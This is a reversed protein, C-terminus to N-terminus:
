AAEKPLRALPTLGGRVMDGVACELTWELPLFLDVRSGFRIIGIRDGRAVRDGENPDTVIRRAILGAIQRVLVRGNSTQFGLSAQENGESAKPKWAVAFAGPRYHRHTIDGGVPARQVHVNFVSLFITLRRCPGGFFTDEIIEAIDLIKGDAPSLVLGADSPGARPPDRFFWSVLATLGTLASALGLTWDAGGGAILVMAWAGLALVAAGAIFPRGEPALRM